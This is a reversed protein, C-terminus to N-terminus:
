TATQAAAVRGGGSYKAERTSYGIAPEPLDPPSWNTM